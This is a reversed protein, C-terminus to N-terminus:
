KDKISNGKTSITRKKKNTTTVQGRYKMKKGGLRM